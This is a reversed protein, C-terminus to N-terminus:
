KLLEGLTGTFASPISSDSTSLRLIKMTYQHEGKSSIKPLKSGRTTCGTITENYSRPETGVRFYCDGQYCNKASVTFLAFRTPIYEKIINLHKISHDSIHAPRCDYEQLLYYLEVYHM